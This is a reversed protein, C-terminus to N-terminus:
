MAFCGHTQSCPTLTNVKRKAVANLVHSDATYLARTFDFFIRQLKRCHGSVGTDYAAVLWRVVGASGKM